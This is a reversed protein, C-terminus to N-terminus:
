TINNYWSQSDHLELHIIRSSSYKLKTSFRCTWFHIKEVVSFYLELLIMCRSNCSLSKQSGSININYITIELNYIIFIRIDCACIWVYNWVGCIATLFFCDRAKLRFVIAASRTLIFSRLCCRTASNYASAPLLESNTRWSQCPQKFKDHKKM